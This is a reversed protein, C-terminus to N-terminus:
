SENAKEHSEKVKDLMLAPLPRDLKAQAIVRDIDEMAAVAEEESMGDEMRDDIMEAYFEIM